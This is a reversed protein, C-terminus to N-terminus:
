EHNDEGNKKIYNSVCAILEDCDSDEVKNWFLEMKISAYEWEPKFLSIERNQKSIKGTMSVSVVLGKDINTLCDSIKYDKQAQELDHYLGSGIEYGDFDISTNNNLSKLLDDRNSNVVGDTCLEKMLKHRLMKRLYDVPQIVPEIWIFEDVDPHSAAYLASLYASFRLGIIGLQHIGTNLKLFHVVTTIDTFWEDLRAEGFDGESDGCGRLDFMLVPFGDQCLRRSLEVMTRHASKKEEAFPHILVYGRSKKLGSEPCFLMGFLRPSKDTFFAKEM